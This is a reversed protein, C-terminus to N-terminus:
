APRRRGCGARSTARARRGRRSRCRASSARSPRCWRARGTSRSTSRPTSTTRRLVQARAAAAGGLAQAARGRRRGAGQQSRRAAGEAGRHPRGQHVQRGQLDGRRRVDDHHRGAAQRAPGRRRADADDRRSLSLGRQGLRDAGHRRGQRGRAHRHQRRLPTTKAGGVTAMRLVQAMTPVDAEVMGPVRHARLM